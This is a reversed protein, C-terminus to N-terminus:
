RCAKMTESRRAANEVAKENKRVNCLVVKAAQLYLHRRNYVATRAGGCLKAISIKSCSGLYIFVTSVLAGGGGASAAYLGRFLFWGKGGILFIRGVYGFFCVSVPGTM